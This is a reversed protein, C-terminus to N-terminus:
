ASPNIEKLIESLPRTPENHHVDFLAIDEKEEMLEVFFQLVVQKETDSFQQFTQIYEQTNPM